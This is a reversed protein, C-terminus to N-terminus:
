ALPDAPAWDSRLWFRFEIGPWRRSMIPPAAVRRDEYAVAATKGDATWEEPIVWWHTGTAGTPPLDVGPITTLSVRQIPHEARIADAHALWDAPALRVQVLFGREYDELLGGTIFPGAGGAWRYWNLVGDTCRTMYRTAACAASNAEYFRACEACPCPIFATRNPCDAPSYDYKAFECYARITYARQRAEEPFPYDDAHDDLYDAYVLRPTDDNPHARIAALLAEADTM